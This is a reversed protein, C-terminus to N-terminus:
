GNALRSAGDGNRCLEDNIARWLSAPDRGTDIKSRWYRGRKSRLLRHMSGLAEVCHERAATSRTKKYRRELRRAHRKASRCESDYWRDSSSRVRCTIEAM